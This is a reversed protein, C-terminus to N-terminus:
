WLLKDIRWILVSPVKVEYQQLASRKTSALGMGAQTGILEFLHRSEDHAQVM